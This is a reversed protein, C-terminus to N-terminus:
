MWATDDGHFLYTVQYMVSTVLSKIKNKVPLNCGPKPNLYTAATVM